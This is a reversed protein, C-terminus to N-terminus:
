SASGGPESRGDASVPTDSTSSTTASSTPRSHGGTTPSSGGSAKSEGPNLGYRGTLWAVLDNLDGKSPQHAWFDDFDAGLLCRMAAKGDHVLYVFEAPLEVPCVFKQGGFIFMPPEGLAEQRAARVADLDFPEGM